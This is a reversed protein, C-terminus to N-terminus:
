TRDSASDQRFRRQGLRESRRQAPCGFGRYPAGAIGLAGYEKVLEFPFEARGWYQNIVPAVREEAFARVRSLLAQDTAEVLQAIQYFDGEVARSPAAGPPCSATKAVEGPLNRPAPQSKM